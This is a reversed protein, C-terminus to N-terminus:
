SLGLRRLSIHPRTCLQRASSSPRQLQSVSHVNHQPCPTHMNSVFNSSVAFRRVAVHVGAEQAITKLSRVVALKAAMPSDCGVYRTICCGVVCMVTFRAPTKHRHTHARLLESRGLTGTGVIRGTHFLLVRSRPEDFPLQVATFRRPAFYVAGRCKVAIKKLDFPLDSGDLPIADALSVLNVLEPVLDLADEYDKLPTGDTYRAYSWVHEDSLDEIPKTSLQQFYSDRMDGVITTTRAKLDEFSIANSKACILNDIGKCALVNETFNTWASSHQHETRTDDNCEEM